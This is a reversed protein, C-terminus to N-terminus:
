VGKDKMNKRKLAEADYKYAIYQKSAVILFTAVIVFVMTYYVLLYVSVIISVALIALFGSNEESRPKQIPPPLQVEKSKVDEDMKEWQSEDEDEMNVELSAMLRLDSPRQISNEFAESIDRRFPSPKWLPKKMDDGIIDCVEVAKSEKDSESM